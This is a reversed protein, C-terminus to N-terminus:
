GGALTGDEQDIGGLADLGLSQGVEVHGDLTVQDDDRDQVLDIKRGGFRLAVRLLDGREDAAIDIVDELDGALGALAHGFKEVADDLRDRGRMSIRGGRGAGHDEVGDVVGVPAHDRVHADDVPSQPGAFANLHQRGAGDVVQQLDADDAGLGRRRGAQSGALDPVEDGPDLVHAVGPDPVGDCRGGGRGGLRQGAVLIGLRHDEGAQEGHVAGVERSQAVGQVLELEVVGGQGVLRLGRRSETEAEAAAVQTQQVQLDDALAQLALETEVDDGGGGGHNVLDGQLIAANVRHGIRALEGRPLDRLDAFRDHPGRDERGALEDAGDHLQADRPAAGHRSHVVQRGRAHLHAVYQRQRLDDEVEEVSQLRAGAAIRGQVVLHVPPLARIQDLDVNQEVTLPDVGKAGDDM